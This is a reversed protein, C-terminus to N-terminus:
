PLVSKLLTRAALHHLSNHKAIKARSWTPIHLSLVTEILTHFLVVLILTSV